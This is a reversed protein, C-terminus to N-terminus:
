RAAPAAAPRAAPIAIGPLPQVDPEGANFGFLAAVTKAIALPSTEEDHKGPSVGPGWALLPIHSDSENPQGHTTGTERGYAWMWGPKLVIFVDGSRDPRFSRAIAERYAAAPPLGDEIETNTWASEVGPRTRAWDRVAMKVAEVDLGRRALVPRNLYLCPEDFFAIAAEELARADSRIEYRFKTALFHELTYRDGGLNRVLPHEEGRRSSSLDVRGASLYDAQGTARKQRERTVEPLPQVGHDSTLFLLVRDKGVNTDLWEFFRALTAD